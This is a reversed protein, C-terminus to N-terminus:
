VSQWQRSSAHVDICCQHSQEGQGCEVWADDYCFLFWRRRNRNGISGMSLKEIGIVQRREGQVIGGM